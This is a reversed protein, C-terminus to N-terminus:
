CVIIEDIPLESQLKNNIEEVVERKQIGKAVDPQNTVVILMFGAKKLISLAQDVGPLIVLSELNDPPYPKGDRVLAQNVVGDRDLFIARRSSKEAQKVM